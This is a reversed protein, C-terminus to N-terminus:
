AATDAPQADMSDESASELELEFGMDKIMDLAADTSQGGSTLYGEVFISNAAYMSMPQLSRLHYERGGAVRLDVDPHMFRLLSLIKLCKRPTLNPTMDGFPTGKVPILFNLPISAPQLLRLQEFMEYIDDDSEGQGVIGGSCVDLGVDKARKLNEVREEYTHTSCLKKYYEPSTNLNHNIRDLGADKLTQAQELTLFGISLCLEIPSAEKIERIMGALHEIETDTPRGGSLALCYRKADMATARKAESLAKDSGWLKYKEIPAESVRSQSCYGCDEGCLGSKVNSLLQVHVKNGRYHHRVRYAAALIDMVDSDPAQIIALGQDRSLSQKAIAQEAIAAYNMATGRGAM